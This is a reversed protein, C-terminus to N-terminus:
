WLRCWRALCTLFLIFLNCIQLIAWTVPTGTRRWLKEKCPHGVITKMRTSVVVTGVTQMWKHSPETAELCKIEPHFLHPIHTSFRVLWALNYLVPRVPGLLISPEPVCTSSRIDHSTNVARCFLNSGLSSLLYWSYSGRTLSPCRPM